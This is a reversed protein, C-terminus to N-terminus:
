QSSNEYIRKDKKIKDIDDAIDSLKIRVNNCEIFEGSNNEPNIYERGNCRIFLEDHCLVYSSKNECVAKTLIKFDSKEITSNKNSIEKVAYATPIKQNNTSFLAIILILLAVGFMFLVRLNKSLKFDM